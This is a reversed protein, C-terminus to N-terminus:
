KVSLADKPVEPATDSPKAVGSLDNAVLAINRSRDGVLRLFVGDKAGAAPGSPMRPQCGRITADCTQILSLM